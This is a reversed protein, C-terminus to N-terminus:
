MAQLKAASIYPFPSVTVVATRCAKTPAWTCEMAYILELQANVTAGADDPAIALSGGGLGVALGCALLHRKLKM